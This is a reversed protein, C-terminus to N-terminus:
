PSKRASKEEAADTEFVTRLEARWHPLRVSFVRSLRENSLVSYPPRVALTPYEATTIPVVHRALLPKGATAAVQWEPIPNGGSAEELISRAFDSWSTEGTATMHYIGGIGSISDAAVSRNPLDSLIQATAVAIERSSTPAGIQDRVIRLEERQTALRLVTLLFNRGRRSYVWATRFILHAAGSCQIAREGALKTRGYASQPNPSDEEIYPTRKSGDFVYDTSYHILIAGIRKAEEAMVAPADANISRATAEDSEAQEVATYAAANVIIDPCNARIAERIEGANSLNLENRGFAVVEGSRPLLIALESGVQGDKGTMLIRPKMM